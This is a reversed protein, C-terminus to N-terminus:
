SQNKDIPHSNLVAGATARFTMKSIGLSSRAALQDAIAGDFMSRYTDAGTDDGGLKTEEVTERMVSLMQRLFSSEMGDCAKKLKTLREANQEINGAARLATGLAGPIM